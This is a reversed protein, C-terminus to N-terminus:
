IVEPPKGGVLKVVRGAASDDRVLDVIAEAVEEPELLEARLPEPLDRGEAKLEGITQLVAETGVTYPCVCNIRIGEGALPALCATLRMVAAKATAYEPGPHPEPGLGATSAVNVIAGAGRRRMAELAFHIGLMVARLNLDLNRTWHEVSAEGFVPQRYGGANNVLIDLAGFEREAHEVMAAVDAERTVDAHVFSAQGAEAIREAAAKGADEDVDAVVVAAGERALRLGTALGIGAGAGTVLATKGAIDM